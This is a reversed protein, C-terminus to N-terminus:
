ELSTSFRKIVNSQPLSIWSASEGFETPNQPVYYSLFIKVLKKEPVRYLYHLYM